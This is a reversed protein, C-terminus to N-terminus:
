VHWKKIAHNGSKRSTQWLGLKKRESSTLWLLLPLHGLHWLFFKRVTCTSVPALLLNKDYYARFSHSCCLRGLRELTLCERDKPCSYSYSSRRWNEGLDLLPEVRHACGKKGAALVAMWSLVRDKRHRCMKGKRGLSETKLRKWKPREIDEISWMEATLCIIKSPVFSPLNLLTPPAKARGDNGASLAM